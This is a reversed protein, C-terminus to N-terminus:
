PQAANLRMGYLGVGDGDRILHLMLQAKQREPHSVRASFHVQFYEEEGKEGLRLNNLYAFGEVKGFMGHLRELQGSVEKQTLRARAESHYLSYLRGADNDNYVDVVRRALSRMEAAPLSQTSLETGSQLAENQRLLVISTLGINVLLLAIILNRATASM